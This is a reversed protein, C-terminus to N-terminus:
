LREATMPPDNPQALAEAVPDSGGLNLHEVALYFLVALLPLKLVWSIVTDAV